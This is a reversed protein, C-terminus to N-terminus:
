LSVSCLWQQSKTCTHCLQLRTRTHTHTHTPPSLADDVAHHCPSAWTSQAHTDTHTNKRDTTSRNGLKHMPYASAM